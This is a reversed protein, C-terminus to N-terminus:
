RHEERRGEDGAGGQRHREQVRDAADDIKSM